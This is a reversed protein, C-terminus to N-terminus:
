VPLMVTEAGRVGAFTVVSDKLVPPLMRSVLAALGSMVTVLRATWAAAPTLRSVATDVRAKLLVPPATSMLLVPARVILATSPILVEDFVPVVVVMVAALGSVM